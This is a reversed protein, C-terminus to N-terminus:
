ENVITQQGSKNKDLTTLEIDPIAWVIDRDWKNFRHILELPRLLRDRFPKMLAQKMLFLERKDTGSFSGKNKGPTSGILSSHVGMVYSIINSVEESDDIFEGGEKGLDITEIEIYKEERAGSTSQVMDKLAVIGRGSNEAGTLFEGFRQHEQDIRARVAEEDSPDIGEDKFLQKFYKPSLYIIYKVAFRNKMLAKKAEPVMVSFDYWGSQFLSWWPSLQYYTRGPSPFSIPLIFRLNSYKGTRLKEELDVMPNFRDLVDTVQIDKKTPNDNWKACYYHKTIRGVSPEVKGWRSFVAEKSRLQVIESKDNSLIIEPFVNYFTKLDMLQELLYGNLDNSFCFDLVRDDDLVEQYDVVKKNEIIRRMPIIGRGYGVLVNFELNAGIVESKNIKDVVDYPMTNTDGWPVINYNGITLIEDPEQFIERTPQMAIITKAEPLYSIGGVSIVKM